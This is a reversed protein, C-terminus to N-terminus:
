KSEKEVKVQTESSVVWCGPWCLPLLLCSERSLMSMPCSVDVLVPQASIKDLVQDLPEKESVSVSCYQCACQWESKYWKDKTVLYQLHLDTPSTVAYCIHGQM